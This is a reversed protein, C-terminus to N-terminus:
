SATRARTPPADSFTGQRSAAIAAEVETRGAGEPLIRFLANMGADMHDDVHCHFMWTGPNDITLDIVEMQAPQANVM